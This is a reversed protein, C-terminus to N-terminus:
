GICVLNRGGRKAQYLARDAREFLTSSSEETKELTAYGCSVTVNLTTSGLDILAGAVRQRLKEAVLAACDPAVGSLLVVFEEGGYRAIFDVKRLASALLDAVSKLV